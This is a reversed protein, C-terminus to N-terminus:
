CANAVHEEFTVAFNHYHSNDCAARFFYYGSEAPYIAAQIASLGPSAIPGPPLGGILYTNYPSQIERYDARTIQPWWSERTGQIGYQVTPDAELKMGILLRNRYVSAIMPQEDRWVSEREIISALTVAEYLTLGQATAEDRLSDGVRDRFTRLLVDRLGEATIDPPLQYSDPFMFGELSAGPPINAWAALDAAIFAGEDVLLLFEASTFGFLGNLDVLEALEEIRAGEVSRFPIFSKSSDTLLLAIQRISQTQNLFYVGAEFRRDYGELRAFDVFLSTDRILRAEGLAAAIAGAGAGAPIHFRMPKADTGFPADLESARGSLQVALIFSQLKDQLQGGATFLVAM